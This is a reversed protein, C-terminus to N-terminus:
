KVMDDGGVKSGSESNKRLRCDKNRMGIIKKSTEIM